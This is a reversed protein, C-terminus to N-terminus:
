QILSRVVEILVEPDVPKSIHKQFGAAIAQQRDFEGAYATVAIAPVQKALKSERVQQLLVYGNMDPMGVDSVILDLPSRDIQHLAEAGSAAATVIAGAQELAFAVFERSDTEDDVVLIRIGTLDDTATSTSASSPSRSSAPALPLQVTFIAGQGEGRNEASIQGGHMEVIQRAIALGLGLGGFKRTTSSDEQRFYEFVHPLFHPSIGKGTDIVRIQAFYDLQQLEVTIQGGSPTFKVANSLLNWVIQQLRGADGNVTVVTPPLTTQIQVSKAEIALHVTELAALIVAGLDVPMAELNLKGRLIRSIDLLDSILQSQLQANREIAALANATKTADLKGQQLLKSWGLIPNLPSRLEHSLVALFEDKIRNATEAQERAAQERELLAQRQQELQKQAEIDTATGFWKVVEGQERLPIAEHLHWCYAGDARRIRGEARYYGEQQAVEWKHNLTAIDDPHVIAEWGETQAQALTLGTFDSWRQNIDILVGNANATWVLQPITEVLYRYREESQQLAAEAQKRDTIDRQSGWARVLKGDEIIGILNNVFIKPNGQQDLEYSEADVLRYNSRIFARLYELNRPDSPVLLDALRVGILDEPACVGYMQAMVQNCEFLYGHQYFHQIQEDEPYDISIPAVEFCWIGESSQQVFARYREESAQLAQEAQKRDDIDVCGGVWEVIQGDGDRVPLGRSLLWRYTGDAKRFRCEMEYAEGSHVAQMWTALARDRDDPYICEAWGQNLLEDGLGTYEQAFRNVYTISGDPRAAFVIHPLSDALQRFRQESRDIVPRDTIPLLSAANAVPSFTTVVADPTSANSQFLPTANFCIWVREGTPKQFGLVNRCPQGSQLAVIAPFDDPAIASGNPCIMRGMFDAITMEVLQQTSYGLLQEAVRDCAQISGGASHFLTGTEDAVSSSNGNHLNNALQAM